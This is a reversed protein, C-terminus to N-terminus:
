LSPKGPASTLIVRDVRFGGVIEYVRCAISGSALPAFLQRFRLDMASLQALRANVEALQANLQSINREATQIQANAANFELGNNSTQARNRRALGSQVKQQNQSLSRLLSRQRAENSSRMRIHDRYPPSTDPYVECRTPFSEVRVFFDVPEGALSSPVSASAPIWPPAAAKVPISAGALPHAPQPISAPSPSAPKDAAESTMRIFEESAPEGRRIGRFSQRGAHIEVQDIFLVPAKPLAIRRRDLQRRTKGPDLSDKLDLPEIIQPTQLAVLTEMDTDTDSVRLVARRILERYREPFRFGALEQGSHPLWRFMLNRGEIQFEALVAVAPSDQDSQNVVSLLEVTMLRHTTQPYQVRLMGECLEELGPMSLEYAGIVNLDSRLIVPEGSGTDAPDPAEPLDVYEVVKQDPPTVRQAPPATSGSSPSFIDAIEELQSYDSVTVHSLQLEQVLERLQRIFLERKISGGPIRLLGFTRSLEPSRVLRALLDDQTLGLEAAVHRVDLEQRFALVTTVVPEATQSIRRIGLSQMVDIFDQRDSALLASLSEPRAYLALIRDRDSFPDNTSEIAQRVNDAKPITGAYHCSMCSVGNVVAPGLPSRDRVVDIPGENIRQGDGDVLLYAHCGNPLAFIIEGGDHDFSDSDSGPGLPYKFINRRGTNGAFDFSEYYMGYQSRRREIIRNNVSVGSSVFGARVVAGPLSDETSQVHLRQELEEKNDPLQLIRHYLPPRSALAIFWDAPIMATSTHTALSIEQAAPSGPPSWQFPITSVIDQWTDADWRVTRLDIRLITGDPDSPVLQTLSEAWSLSNTLKTLALRCTELEDQTYGANHLHTLSFYRYFERDAADAQQLDRAITALTQDPSLFSHEAPTEFPPAGANIWTKLIVREPESVVASDGEPPMEGDEIRVWLPSEQAKGPIVYGKNILKDARLIVNLGGESTGDQGHCAYCHKQIVQRAQITLEETATLPPAHAPTDATPEAVSQLEPASQEGLPLSSASATSAGPPPGNGSDPAAPLPSLSSTSLPSASNAPAAATSSDPSIVTTGGRDCGVLVPMLPILTAIAVLTRTM